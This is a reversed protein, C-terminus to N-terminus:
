RVYIPNSFIWPRYKGLVKLYVEVRYIGRKEINCKMVRGIEEGFLTGDRVVRIKGKGPLGVKLVAQRDLLFEDGMTCERSGDAIFFSFGKAERFYEMAIYARGNKLASLLTEQDKKNDKILPMETLLHTRGFKFAKRFPFIKFNLGFFKKVTDHHDLEGIGVVKTNQNLSDWRNLTVEKPGRLVYAPFFYSFLASLYGKLSFQWDTMFDWIGMGAYGSVTWDLWPFHKVHFMETGQHDPHSIFGIGGKERVEDIYVQPGSEKDEDAVIPSDIGFALYHNFRPAIEQGVILLTDGHWGEFGERRAELTSHDTLMLFDLNNERAAEMIESMPIRGDYSYESHFHIVGAYDHLKLM